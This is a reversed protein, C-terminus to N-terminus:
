VVNTVPVGAYVLNELLIATLKVWLFADCKVSFELLNQAILLGICKEEHIFGNRCHVATEPSDLNQRSPQTRNFPPSGRSQLSVTLSKCCVLALGHCRVCQLPQQQHDRSKDPDGQDPKQDHPERRAVGSLQPRSTTESRRAARSYGEYFPTGDVFRQGLPAGLVTEITGKM